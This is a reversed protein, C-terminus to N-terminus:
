TSIRHLSGDMLTLNFGSASHGCRVEESMDGEGSEALVRSIDGASVFGKGEKDFCSFATRIVGVAEQVSRENARFIRLLLLFRFYFVVCVCVCM